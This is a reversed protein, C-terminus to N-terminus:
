RDARGHRPEGPKDPEATSKLQQVSLASLHDGHWGEGHWAYAIVRAVSESWQAENTGPVVIMRAAHRSHASRIRYLCEYAADLHEQLDRIRTAAATADQIREFVEDDVRTAVIPAGNMVPQAHQAMLGTPDQGAAPAPAQFSPMEPLETENIGEAQVLQRASQLVLPLTQAVVAYFMALRSRASDREMRVDDVEGSRAEMVARTRCTLCSDLPHTCDLSHHALDAMVADYTLPIM